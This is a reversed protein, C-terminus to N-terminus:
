PPHFMEPSKMRDLPYGALAIAPLLPQNAERPPPLASSPNVSRGLRPSPPGPILGFQRREGNVSSYRFGAANEIGPESVAGASPLEGRISGSARLGAIVENSAEM